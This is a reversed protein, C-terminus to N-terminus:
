PRSKGRPRNTIHIVGDEDVYKFYNNNNPNGADVSAPGALLAAAGFGLCAAALRWRRSGSSRRRARM